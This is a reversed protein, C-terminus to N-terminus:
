PILPPNIDYYSGAAAHSLTVPEAEVVMIIRRSGRFQLSTRTTM